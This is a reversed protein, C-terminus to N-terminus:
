ALRNEQQWRYYDLLELEAAAAEDVIATTDPHLQLASATTMSTIPGELAARVAPAKNAGCALLLCTRAELITGIGMTIAFRPVQAADDFFRANDEVTQRTLCAVHTRSGLSTGPENFAIHGDRGIGLVQLDIGGAQRIMREYQACHAAPDVALGDPVHTRAVDVNVHNFLKANMFSRYSQDHDPGLGVYEDLNFTVAQSFDLGDNRHAAVLREYIGEPTSGTALGLVIDPRNRLADIVIQAGRESMADYDQTIIVEM